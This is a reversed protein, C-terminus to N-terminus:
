EPSWAVFSGRGIWRPTEEDLHQVWIGSLRNRVGPYAFASGDPAWLNMSQAYQDFFALYNQFFLRSPLFSGYDRSAAGDWVNWRFRLGQSSNEATLYALKSGDPSWFFAVTPRTTLERTALSNMDVVYLSGLAAMSVAADTVVYAVQQSDPSVSFAIRSGFDTLEQEIEGNLDSVVLRQVGGEAVAYILKEGERTWHPAPFDGSETEFATQVGDLTQLQLRENDIHTIMRDGSPDWSFYFPSGEALTRVKLAPDDQSSPVEAVRLAMSPVNFRDWNSLYALKDGRPSWFIYFPAYPVEAEARDEGNFSVTVLKILQEDGSTDVETWAIQHASPSWTPQLYQYTASADETLALRDTGDPDVTIINGDSDIVLLRNTLAVEAPSTDEAQVLPTQQLQAALADASCGTLTLLVGAFLVYLGTHRINRFM